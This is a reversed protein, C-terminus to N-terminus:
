ASTLGVKTFSDGLGRQGSIARCAKSRHVFVARDRGRPAATGSAPSMVPRTQYSTVKQNMVWLLSDNLFRAERFSESFVFHIPRSPKEEWETKGKVGFMNEM